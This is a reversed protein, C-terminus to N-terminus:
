AEIGPVIFIQCNMKGAATSLIASVEEVGDPVFMYQFATCSSDNVCVEECDDIEDTLKM